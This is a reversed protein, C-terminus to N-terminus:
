VFEFEDLHPLDDDGDMGVEGTTLQPARSRIGSDVPVFPQLGMASCM